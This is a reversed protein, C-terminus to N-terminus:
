VVVFVRSKIKLVEAEERQLLQAHNNTGRTSQIPFLWQLYNMTKELRTYNGHWKLMEEIKYGSGSQSKIENRYFLLNKNNQTSHLCM